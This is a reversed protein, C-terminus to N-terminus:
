KSNENEMSKKMKLQAVIVISIIVLLFWSSIKGLSVLQWVQQQNPYQWAGLYTVINEAIWIFFGVLLFSLIIPMNFVKDLLTFYVTTHSFVLFLVLILIWRFDYLFHHTFFNIYILVAVTLALDYKPWPIMSIKLHRWSQCIFSAVSAYMFGSYLPVGFFKSNAEDPYVWSGM